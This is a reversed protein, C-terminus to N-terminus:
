SFYYQMREAMLTEADAIQQRLLDKQKEIAEVQSAFQQQLALPPLPFKLERLTKMPVSKITAGKSTEDCFKTVVDSHLLFLLFLSNLFEKKPKLVYVGEKINWNKPQEKVYATRGITGTGSFLVDGKELNSRNNILPLAYDCVKDTTSSIQINYGGLERVTIYFNSAGDENLKFNQRPNLGTRLSVLSESFTSLNWGKPNSIPDGFTELFISQALADLDALQERYGDIMAQISDLEATIERQQEYPPLTIQKQSITKKNITVGKVARNGKWKLAALAYSLFVNDVKIGCKPYFAMIAENTTLPCDVICTKGITLKFSMIVTGVPVIPINCQKITSLPLLEKTSSIHKKGNMDSISVWPIEGNDWLDLDGRPPTKGMQLDFLECIPKTVWMSKDVRM